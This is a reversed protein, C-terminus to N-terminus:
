MEILDADYLIAFETRKRTLHILELKILKVESQSKTSGTLPPDNDKNWGNPPSEPKAARHSPYKLIFYM